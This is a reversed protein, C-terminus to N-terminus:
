YFLQLKGGLTEVFSRTKKAIHAPGRDVILFIPHDAGAILTQPIRHVGRRQRQGQGQDHLAHPKLQMPNKQTVTVYIWRLSKGSLKPPRGSIPKAKLAGWGGRRTRALWGYVTSRNLGLVRAIDEPNEGDQIRRVARERMAELTAHDLGRGDNKKM